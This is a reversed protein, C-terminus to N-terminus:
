GKRRMPQRKLDAIQLALDVINGRATDFVKPPIEHQHYRWAILAALVLGGALHPGKGQAQMATGFHVLPNDPGHPLEECQRLTEALEDIQRKLKASFDEARKVEDDSGDKAM